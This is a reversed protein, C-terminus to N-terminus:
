VKKSDVGTNICAAVLHDLSPRGGLAGTWAPNTLVAPGPFGLLRGRARSAALSLVGVGGLLAALRLVGIIDAGTSALGPPRQILLGLVEGGPTSVTSSDSSSVTAGNHNVTGQVRITNIARSGKEPSYAELTFTCTASGGAPVIQGTLENCVRVGEGSPLYDVVEGVTVQDNAQNLVSVEFPITAGPKTAIEANTFTFDGDADNSKTVVLPPAAPFGRLQDGRQPRVTANGNGGTGAKGAGKTDRGGANAKAGGPATTASGGGASDGTGIIGGGALGGGGGGASVVGGTGGVSDATTQVSTSTEAVTSEVQDVTDGIPSPLPPPSPLSPLPLPPPSPPPPLQAGARQLPWALFLLALSAPVAAWRRM